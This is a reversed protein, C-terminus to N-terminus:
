SDCTPLARLVNARARPNEIRRAQDWIEQRRQMCRVRDAAQEAAQETRDTPPALGQLQLESFVGHVTEAEAHGDLEGSLQEDTVVTSLDRNCPGLEFGPDATCVEYGDATARGVVAVHSAGEGRPELFAYFASGYQTSFTLHKGRTETVTSRPGKFKLVVGGRATPVQDVLTFGRQSFLQTLELAATPVPRQLDLESGAPGLQTRSSPVFHFTGTCAGLALALATIFSAKM